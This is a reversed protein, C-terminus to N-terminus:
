STSSCFKGKKQSYRYIKKNTCSHPGELRTHCPRSATQFVSLKVNCASGCSVFSQSLIWYLVYYLSIQSVLPKIIIRSTISNSQITLKRQLAVGGKLLDDPFILFNNLTKTLTNPTHQTSISWSSKESQPWCKLVSLKTSVISFISFEMYSQTM